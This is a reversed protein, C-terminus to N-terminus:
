LRRQDFRRAMRIYVRSKLHLYFPRADAHLNVLQEFSTRRDTAYAVDPTKVKFYCPVRKGRGV